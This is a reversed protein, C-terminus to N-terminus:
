KKGILISAFRDFMLHLRNQADDLAENKMKNIDPQNMSLSVQEFLEEPLNKDIELISHGLGFENAVNKIKHQYNLAIVPVQQSVCFIFSHLRIAINLVPLSVLSVAQRPTPAEHLILTDVEGDLNEIIKEAILIDNNPGTSQYPIFVFRFKYQSALLSLSKSILELGNEESIGSPLEDLEVPYIFVTKDPAFSVFESIYNLSDPLLPLPELLLGPDPVVEIEALDNSAQAILDASNRDRVSIYRCYKLARVVLENSRKYLFPGIGVTYTCVPKGLVGAIFVEDLTRFLNGKSGADRLLSGGGVVLM